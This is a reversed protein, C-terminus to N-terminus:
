RIHFIRFQFVFFVSYSRIISAQRALPLSNSSITLTPDVFEVNKFNITLM